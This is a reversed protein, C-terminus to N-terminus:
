IKPLLGGRNLETVLKQDPNSDGRCVLFLAMAKQSEDSQFHKSNRLRTYLKSLVYGVLYQLVYLERDNINKTSDQDSEVKSNATKLLADCLKTLGIGCPTPPPPPPTLNAWPSKLKSYSKIPKYLNASIKHSQRFNIPIESFPLFFNGHGIKGPSLM